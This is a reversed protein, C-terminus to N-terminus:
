RFQGVASEAPASSVIGTQQFGPPSPSVGCQEAACETGRWEVACSIQAMAEMKFTELTAARGVAVTEGDM